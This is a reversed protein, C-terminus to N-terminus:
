DPNFTQGFIEPKCEILGETGIYDHIIDVMRGIDEWSQRRKVDEALYALQLDGGKSEEFALRNLEQLLFAQEESDMSWILKAVEGVSPTIRVPYKRELEIM